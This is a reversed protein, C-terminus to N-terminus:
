HGKEKKLKQLKYESLQREARNRRWAEFGAVVGFLLILLQLLGTLKISLIVSFVSSWFPKQSTM